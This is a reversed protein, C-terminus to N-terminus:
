RAEAIASLVQQHLASTACVLLSGDCNLDIPNGSWDTVMAGAAELVPVLAMIDHVALQDEMVIDLHGAALLAYNYCDGGFHRGLAQASITNFLALGEASFADPSTTAIHAEDLSTCHSSSLQTESSITKLVAHGSETRYAEGLMPMDILGAVPKGDIVLAVLTGFIPKGVVFARTGDIPDIIWCYHGEAQGGQEEGIIAHDPFHHALAARIQKEVEKDAITVPSADSKTEVAFGSRFRKEIIPRTLSPLQELFQEAQAIVVDQGAM